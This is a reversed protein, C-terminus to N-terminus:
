QQYWTLQNRIASTLHHLSTENPKERANHQIGDGNDMEM